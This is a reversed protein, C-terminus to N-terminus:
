PPRTRTPKRREAELWARKKGALVFHNGEQSCTPFPLNILQPLPSGADDSGPFEEERLAVAFVSGRFEIGPLKMLEPIAGNENLVVRLLRDINVAHRHRKENGFVHFPSQQTLEKIPLRSLSQVDELCEMQEVREGRADFLDVMPMFIMAIQVRVINQDTPATDRVFDLDDVHEVATRRARLADGVVYAIENANEVVREAALLVVGTLGRLDFRDAAAEFAREDKLFKARGALQAHMQLAHLPSVFAGSRDQAFTALATPDRERSAAAALGNPPSEDKRAARVNGGQVLPDARAIMLCVALTRVVSTAGIVFESLSNM